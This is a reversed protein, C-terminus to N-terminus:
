WLKADEEDFRKLWSQFAYYETWKKDTAINEREIFRRLKEGLLSTEGNIDSDTIICFSQDTYYPEEYVMQNDSLVKKGFILGEMVRLSVGTQGEQLLEVIVKSQKIRAVVDKYNMRETYIGKKCSSSDKVVRFDVNLGVMEAACKIKMLRDYRGKDLGVFFLDVQPEICECEPKLFYYTSNYRMSYKECDEKSFSWLECNNRNIKEPSVCNCVPNWYWYIIRGKYGKRRLVDPVSRNIANAHIIIKEYSGIDSIWTDFFFATSLNMRSSIKRIIRGAKETRRYLNRIDVDESYTRSIMNPIDESVDPWLMLVKAM